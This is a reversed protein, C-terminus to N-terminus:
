VSNYAMYIIMYMYKQGLIDIINRQLVFLSIINRRESCPEIWNESRAMRFVRSEGEEEEGELIEKLQQILSDGIIAFQSRFADM